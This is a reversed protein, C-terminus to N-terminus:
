KGAAPSPGSFPKEGAIFRDVRSSVDKLYALDGGQIETTVYGSYGIENLARRV